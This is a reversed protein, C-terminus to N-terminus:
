RLHLLASEPAATIWALEHVVGVGLREAKDADRQILMVNVFCWEKMPFMDDLVVMDDVTSSRSLLMFEFRQHRNQKIMNEWSNELFITGVPQSNQDSIIFAKHYKWDIDGEGLDLTDGLFQFTAISTWCSLSCSRSDQATLEERPRLANLFTAPPRGIPRIDERSSPDYPKPPESGNPPSLSFATGDKNVLYWEVERRIYGSFQARYDALADWGAWSWSPFGVGRTATLLATRRRHPERLHWLLAEDLLTEPLGHIFETNMTARLISIVGELAALADGQDSMERGTYLEVIHAYYNFAASPNSFMSRSLGLANGKQGESVDNHIGSSNWLSTGPYIFASPSKGEGVVDECFVGCPCQFYLQVNTFFLRRRSLLHEQFTWARTNWPSTLTAQEVDLQTTCLELGQISATAQFPQRNLRYGPLGDYQSPREASPPASIITLLANDYVRDMQLVQEEKDKDDDQVMCLADVWLFERGIERVFEIADQITGPLEDWVSSIGGCAQLRAVNSMTTTFHRTSQAWCYSLAAYRAEAPLFVLCMSNVDIVRLNRPALRAYALDDRGGATECLDGHGQECEDIWERALQVNTRDPDVIRGHFIARPGHILSNTSLLQIDGAHDLYPRNEGSPGRLAIGLRLAPRNLAAKPLMKAGEYRDDAFLYSFLYIQPKADLGPASEAWEIYEDATSWQDPGWRRLFAEMVLKCLACTGSTAHLDTLSCLM